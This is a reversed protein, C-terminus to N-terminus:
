VARSHRHHAIVMKAMESPSLKGARTLAVLRDDTSDSKPDDGALRTVTNAWSDAFTPTFHVKAQKALMGAYLATVSSHHHRTFTNPKKKQLRARRILAQKGHLAIASPKAYIGDAIRQIVGQTRLSLLGRSVHERSGLSRIDSRLLLGDQSQQLFRLIRSKTGM